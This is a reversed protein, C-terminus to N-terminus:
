SLLKFYLIYDLYFAHQLIVNLLSVHKYHEIWLPVKDYMYCM